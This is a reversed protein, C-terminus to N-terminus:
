PLTALLMTFMPSSSRPTARRYSIAVRAAAKDPPRDIAAYGLLAMALVALGTSLLVPGGAQGLALLAIAACFVSAASGTSSFSACRGGETQLRRRPSRLMTQQGRTMRNPLLQWIRRCTTGANSGSQAHDSALM